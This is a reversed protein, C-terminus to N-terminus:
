ADVIGRHRLAEFRWSDPLPMKPPIIVGSRGLARHLHPLTM